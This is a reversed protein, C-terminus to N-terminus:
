SNSLDRGCTPCKGKPTAAKREGEYWEEDRQEKTKEDM